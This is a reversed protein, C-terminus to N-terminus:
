YPRTPESIHILSLRLVGGEVLGAAFLLVFGLVLGLVRGEVGFLVGVCRSRESCASTFPAGAYTEARSRSGVGM